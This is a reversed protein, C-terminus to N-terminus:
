LVFKLVALAICFFFKDGFGLVLLLVWSLLFIFNLHGIVLQVVSSFVRFNSHILCSLTYWSKLLLSRTSILFYKLAHKIFCPFILTSYTHVITYIFIRYTIHIFPFIRSWHCLNSRWWISLHFSEWSPSSISLCVCPNLWIVLLYSCFLFDEKCIM